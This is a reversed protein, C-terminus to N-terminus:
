RENAVWSFCHPPISKCKSWTLNKPQSIIVESSGKKAVEYKAYKSKCFIHSLMKGANCCGHNSKLQKERHTTWFERAVSKHKNEKKKLSVSSTKGRVRKPLIGLKVNNKELSIPLMEVYKSYSFHKPQFQSHRSSKVALFLQFCTKEYVIHNKNFNESM